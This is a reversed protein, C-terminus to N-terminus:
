RTMRRTTPIHLQRELLLSKRYPNKLSLLLSMIVLCRLREPEDDIPGDLPEVIREDEPKFFKHEDDSSSVFDFGQENMLDYWKKDFTNYLNREEGESNKLSILYDGQALFKGNWVTM